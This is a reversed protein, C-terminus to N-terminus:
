WQAPCVRVATNQRFEFKILVMDPDLPTYSIKGQRTYHAGFGLENLNLMRKQEAM